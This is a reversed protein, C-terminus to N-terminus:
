LLAVVVVVLAALSCLAVIARIRNRELWALRRELWQVFAGETM